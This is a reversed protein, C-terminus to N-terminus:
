QNAHRQIQPDDSSAAIERGLAKKEENSSRSMLMNVFQRKERDREINAYARRLDDVSEFNPIFGLAFQRRHKSPSEFFELLRSEQLASMKFDKHNLGTNFVRSGGADLMSDFHRNLFELRLQPEQRLFNSVSHISVSNDFSIDRLFGRVFQPDQDWILSMLDNNFHRIAQESQLFQKAWGLAQTDERELLSVLLQMKNWNQVLESQYLTKLQHTELEHAKGEMLMHVVMQKNFSSEASEFEAFLEEADLQILRSQAEQWRRSSGMQWEDLADNLNGSKAARRFEAIFEAQRRQLQDPQQSQSSNESLSASEEEDTAEGTALSETAVETRSDNALEATAPLSGGHASQQDSFYGMYYLLGINNIALLVIFILIIHSNKLNM